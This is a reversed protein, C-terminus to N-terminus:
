RTAPPAQGSRSDDVTILSVPGDYREDAAAAADQELWRQSDASHIALVLQHAPFERLGDDAAQIPDKSGIRGQAPVGIQELARLTGDLHQAADDYGQQDGTWRDLRSGLAPAVVFAEAPQGAAHEDIAARLGDPTCVGDAVVLVRHVSGGEVSRLVPPADIDLPHRHSEGLRLTLYGCVVVGVAGVLLWAWLGIAAAAFVIFIVGLIVIVLPIAIFEKRKWIQM